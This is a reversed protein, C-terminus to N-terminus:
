YCLSVSPTDLCQCQLDEPTTWKLFDFSLCRLQSSQRLYDLVIPFVELTLSHLHLTTLPHSRHVALWHLEHLIDVAGIFIHRLNEPPSVAHMLSNQSSESHSDADYDDSGVGYIVLTELAPLSAILRVRDELSGFTLFQLKLYRLNKLTLLLGQLGDDVLTLGAGTTTRI